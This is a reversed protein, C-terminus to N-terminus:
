VRMPTKSCWPYRKRIAKTFKLPKSRFSIAGRTPIDLGAIMRALTTKGCGSEGVIGVAEGHQVSLSVGRVAYTQVVKGHSRTKFTRHVDDIRLLSTTEDNTSDNEVIVSTM